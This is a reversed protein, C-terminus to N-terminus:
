LGVTTNVTSEARQYRDRAAETHNRVTHPSLGLYEAIDDRNMDFWGALVVMQAERESYVSDSVLDSVIDDVDVSVLQDVLDYYDEAAIADLFIEGPVHEADEVAPTSLLEMPMLVFEDGRRAFVKDSEDLMDAPQGYVLWEEEGGDTVLVAEDDEDACEDEDNDEDADDEPEFAPDLDIVLEKETGTSKKITATRADEDVDLSFACMANDTELSGTQLDIWLGVSSWNNIYLRDKGYNTWRSVYESGNVKANSEVTTIEADTTLETLDTM